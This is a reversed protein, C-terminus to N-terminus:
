QTVHIPHLPLSCYQDISFSFARSGWLCRLQYVDLSMLSTYVVMPCTCLVVSIGLIDWWVSCPRDSFNGIINIWLASTWNHYNHTVIDTLNCSLMDILNYMLWPAQWTTMNHSQWITCLWLQINPWTTNKDFQIEPWTTHWTLNYTRALNHMLWNYTSDLRADLKINLWTTHWDLLTDTM